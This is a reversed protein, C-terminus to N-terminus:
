KNVTSSFISTLPSAYNSKVFISCCCSNKSRHLAKEIGAETLLTDHCGSKIACMILDADVGADELKSIYQTLNKEKLLDRLIRVLESDDAGQLERRYLVIIRVRDLTSKVGLEDFTDKSAMLLTSGDM